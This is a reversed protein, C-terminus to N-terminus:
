VKGEKARARIIELAEAAAENPTKGGAAMIRDFEARIETEIRAKVADETAAKKVAEETDSPPTAKPEPAAPVAEEPTPTAADISTAPAAHHNM